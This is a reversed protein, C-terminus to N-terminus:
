NHFHAISVTVGKQMIIYSAMRKTYFQYVQIRYSLEHIAHPLESQLIIMVIIYYLIFYYLIIHNNKIASFGYLEFRKVTLLYSVADNFNILNTIRTILICTLM